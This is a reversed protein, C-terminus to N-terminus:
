RKGLIVLDYSRTMKYSIYNSDLIHAIELFQEIDAHAVTQINVISNTSEDFRFSDFKSIEELLKISM